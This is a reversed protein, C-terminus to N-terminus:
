SHTGLSRSVEWRPEEAGGWFAVGTVEVGLCKPFVQHLSSCSMGPRWCEQGLHDNRGVCCQVSTVRNEM